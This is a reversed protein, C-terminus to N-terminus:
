KHTLTWRTIDREGISFTVTVTSAAFNLHETATGATWATTGDITVAGSGTDGYGKGIPDLASGNINNYGATATVSTVGEGITISSFKGEAGSGIGPSYKGGTATITGGEIRIYARAKM